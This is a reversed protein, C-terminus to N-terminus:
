EYLINISGADFADTGNATTIRVRDLAGSLGVSGITVAGITSFAFGGFATWTTGTIFSFVIQGTIANAANGSAINFGNTATTDGASYTSVSTYGSTKVGGSDGLQILPASTGNTSVGAFMVTVRRVWSPIGTFDISTGSTSAKATEQVLGVNASTGNLSAQIRGASFVFGTDADSGIIAPTGASGDVGSIGTTGNLYLTM